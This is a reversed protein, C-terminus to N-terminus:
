TALVEVGVDYQISAGPELSRATGTEGAQDPSWGWSTMLEVAFVDWGGSQTSPSQYDFWLLAYPFQEVDFRLVLAQHIAPASIRVEGRTLSVCVHDQQGSPSEPIHSVDVVDNVIGRASPWEFHQNPQLAAAGPDLSPGLVYCDGAGLDITGERFTHRSLCPHEGYTYPERYSGANRMRTSVVVRSSEVRVSRTLEIPSRLLRLTGVIESDDAQQLVWPLRCAEGHLLTARGDLNGPLGASPIMPFWGGVFLDNFTEFSPAGSPGLGPTSTAPEHFPREWLLEGEASRLGLSRILFGREPVVVANLNASGVRYEEGFDSREPM